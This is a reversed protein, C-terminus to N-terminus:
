EGHVFDQRPPSYFHDLLLPAQSNTIPDMLSEPLSCAFSSSQSSWHHDVCRASMKGRGLGTFGIAEEEPDRARPAEGPTEGLRAATEAPGALPSRLAVDARV